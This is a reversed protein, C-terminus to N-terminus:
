GDCRNRGLDVTKRREDFHHRSEFSHTQIDMSRAIARTLRDEKQRLLPPSSRYGIQRVSAIM